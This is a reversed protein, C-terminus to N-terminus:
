EGPSHGPPRPSRPGPSPSHAQTGMRDLWPGGDGLGARCRKWHAGALVAVPGPRHEQSAMTWHSQPRPPQMAPQHPTWVGCECTGAAWSAGCLRSGPARSFAATSSPSHLRPHWALAVMGQGAPVALSAPTLVPGAGRSESSAVRQSFQPSGSVGSGPDWDWPSPCLLERVGWRITM